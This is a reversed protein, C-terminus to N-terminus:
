FFYDAECFVVGPDEQYQAQDNQDGYTDQGGSGSAAAILGPTM